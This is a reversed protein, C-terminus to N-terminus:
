IKAARERVQIQNAVRTIERVGVVPAPMNKVANAMILAQQSASINQQTVFGGDAYGKIRMSELAQIHPQAVPSNVIHQPAVYEGKHVIGAPEYKGGSGTYGGEAFEIGNIQAVRALGQAVALAAYAAGLGPSAVTPIPLFAAEYAKQAATYTSIITQFTAIAKYEESQQDFLSSAIDMFGLTIDVRADAVEQELKIRAEASRQDQRRRELQFQEDAQLVRQNFREQIEFQNDLETAFAGELPNATTADTPNAARRSARELDSIQTLIAKRATFNETLKGNIEEEIDRTEARKQEIQLVIANQNQWNVNAKKIAEIEQNIVNIRVQQNALLNAEVTDAAKLREELIREEEDRIRRANEAANEFLKAFGQARAAEIELNRLEERARALAKAQADISEISVGTTAQLALLAVNVGPINKALNLFGDVAKNLIGEGGEGSGSVLTGLAESLSSTVFTLRDQAFALDKAGSSSAAYATGLAALIGVAATAPTLFKSMSGGADSVSVGFPKVQDIASKFQDPYNGINDKFQGAAKSGKNLENNLQALEKQLEDARKKGKETTLNLNNYETNLKAVQQRMANRSNSETELLKNLTRKQSTEAAIAKQLKLNSQIYQDESIKGAKYEKNLEAQQKKLSIINKETKTLEKQAQTQDVELNMIITEEAM